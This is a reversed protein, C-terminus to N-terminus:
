PLRLNPVYRLSLDM